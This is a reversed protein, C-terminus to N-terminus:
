WRPHGCGGFRGVVLKNPLTERTLRARKRLEDFLVLTEHEGDCQAADAIDRLGLVNGLFCEDLCPAVERSQAVARSNTRPDSANCSVEAKAPPSAHAASSIAFGSRHM